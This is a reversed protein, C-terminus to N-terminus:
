GGSATMRGNNRPSDARRKPSSRHIGPWRGRRRELRPVIPQRSRQVATLAGGFELLRLLALALVLPGMVIVAVSLSFLPKEIDIEFSFHSKYHVTVRRIGICHHRVHGCIERAMLSKTWEARAIQDV